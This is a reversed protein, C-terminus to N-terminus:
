FLCKSYASGYFMHRNVHFIMKEIMGFDLNVLAENLYKMSVSFVIMFLYKKFQKHRLDFCFDVCHLHGINTKESFM